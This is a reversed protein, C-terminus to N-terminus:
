GGRGVCSAGVMVVAVTVVLLLLLVTAVVGGHHGGDGACVAGLLGVGVGVGGGGGDAVVLRVGEFQRVKDGGGEIVGYVLAVEGRRGHLGRDVGSAASPPFREKQYPPPVVGSSASSLATVGSQVSTGTLASVLVRRLFTLLGDGVADLVKNM